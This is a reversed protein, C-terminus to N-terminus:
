WALESVDRDHEPNYVTFFEDNYSIVALESDNMELMKNVKGTIYKATHKNFGLVRAREKMKRNWYELETRLLKAKGTYERVKDQLLLLEDSCAEIQVHKNVRAMRKSSRHAGKLIRAGIPSHMIAFMTGASVVGAVAYQGGPINDILSADDDVDEEVVESASNTTFATSSSTASLDVNGAADFVLVRIELITDNEFPVGQNTGVFDISSEMEFSLNASQLITGIEDLILVEYRVVDDGTSKTWSIHIVGSTNNQYVELGTIPPPAVLDLIDATGDSSNETGGPGDPVIQRIAISGFCEAIAIDSCITTLTINNLGPKLTRIVIFIEDSSFISVNLSYADNGWQGPDDDLRVFTDGHGFLMFGRTTENLYNFEIIASGNSYLGFPGLEVEYYEEEDWDDKEEIHVTGTESKTKPMTYLEAWITANQWNEGYGATSINFSRNGLDLYEIKVRSLGLRAGDAQVLDGITITSLGIDRTRIILRNEDFFFNSGGSFQEVIFKQAYDDATLGNMPTVQTLALVGNGTTLFFEFRFTTGNSYNFEIFGRGDPEHVDINGIDVQYLKDQSVNFTIDRDKIQSENLLLVLTGGNMWGDTDQWRSPDTPFADANDGVGDGDEDVWETPDDPFADLVDPVADNDDDPDSNNGIGDGDTDVWESANAPFEDVADGFGDNDDDTDENADQCGDSDLDTSTNSVWGTEGTQCDDNIDPISDNDDDDDEISSDQCGDSDHDMESLSSNWNTDGDPCLDTQDPRTDNDDDLDANDGISDNDHDLWESASFPFADMLDTVNDNDDDPDANDGISDNDNDAWESANFPFKDLLDTVNDNDDDPDANDGISDNDNDAWESADLPFKDLLDTVNDNDDDDDDDDNSCGDGDADTMISSTWTRNYPSRPCADLSDSVTDNDDDNDETADKCGDGDYDTIPPVDPESPWNIDGRPCQDVGDAITDNDDDPDCADGQGDGDTNNQNLQAFSPCNDTNDGFGDADADSWESVNLPFEDENNFYGDDDSDLTANNVAWPVTTNVWAPTNVSLGAATGLRDDAGEGWCMASNNDLLVCTHGEAHAAIATAKRGIPLDAFTPTLANSNSGDGIQGRGGWGWCVVSGNDLLGCTHAHGGSLAIAERGPPLQVDVPITSNGSSAGTGLRGESASGWCVVSGNERLGCTYEFASALETINGQSQNLLVYVASSTTAEAGNGLRGKDGTGWCTASGNDLVACTHQRGASLHIAYRSAPLLAYTPGDTHDTLDGDGITGLSGRGWCMVSGNDLLACTTEDGITVVSANRPLLAYVPTEQQVTDGNGLRGYGNIGWCMVSRNDVIACTHGWGATVSLATRGVGLNVKVPTASNLTGGNGLQGNSNKGWCYLDASSNIACTHFWGAAIYEQHLDVSGSARGSTYQPIEDTGLMEKQPENSVFNLFAAQTCILAAVIALLRSRAEHPILM